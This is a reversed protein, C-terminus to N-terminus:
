ARGHDGDGLGGPRTFDSPVPYGPISIDSDCENGWISWDARSSPRSRAFLELYPGDLVREILPIMEEPKHSHDQRPFLLTSRQGHFKFPAKGRIGHLLLEHSGRFYNGLGMYYKDWVANTKYTFGWAHMVALADPLAANTTWLLLTADPAMLTAIPMAQIRTVTMLAYHRSAGREGHQQTPWPPDAYCVRFRRPAVATAPSPSPRSSPSAQRRRPPQIDPDPAQSTTTSM